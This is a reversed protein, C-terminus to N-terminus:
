SATPMWGSIAWLGSSLQSYLMKLTRASAATSPVVSTM